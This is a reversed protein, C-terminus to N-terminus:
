KLAEQLSELLDEGFSAIKSEGLGYITTLEELTVPQTRALHELTKDACVMYAPVRLLTSRRTRWKRLHAIIRQQEETLPESPLQPAVRRRRKREGPVSPALTSYRLGEDLRGEDRLLDSLAEYVQLTVRADEAAYSLQAKTLPRRRWNSKQLTKDLAIGFLHASVSALSYSELNLVLRAMRLTDVFGAPKLGAGTLVGEDFRANHAAMLFAPSEVLPRLVEVGVALADIVVAAGDSTALQVLSVHTRKAATDWYTETDLGIIRENQLHALAERVSGEDTLFRFRQNNQPGPDHM